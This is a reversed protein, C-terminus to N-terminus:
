DNFYPYGCEDCFDELVNGVLPSRCRHCHAPRGTDPVSYFGNRQWAIDLLEVALSAGLNSLKPPFALGNWSLIKCSILYNIIPKADPHHKLLYCFRDPNFCALLITDLVARQPMYYFALYLNASVEQGDITPTGNIYKCEM